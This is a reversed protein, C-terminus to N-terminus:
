CEPEAYVLVLLLAMGGSIVWSIIAAPGASQAAFSRHFALRFWCHCGGFAGADPVLGVSTETIPWPPMGGPWSLGPM